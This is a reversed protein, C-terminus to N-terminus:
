NDDHHNIISLNTCYWYNHNKRHIGAVVCWRMRTICFFIQNISKLCLFWYFRRYKQELCSWIITLPQNIKQM